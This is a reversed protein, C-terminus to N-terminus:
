PKSVPNPLFCARRTAFLRLARPLRILLSAPLSGERRISFDERGDNLPMLDRGRPLGRSNGACIAFFLLSFRYLSGARM